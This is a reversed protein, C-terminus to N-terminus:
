LAEGAEVEPEWTLASRVESISCALRICRRAMTRANPICRKCNKRGQFASWKIVYKHLTLCFLTNKTSYLHGRAAITGCLDGIVFSHGGLAGFLAGMGARKPSM